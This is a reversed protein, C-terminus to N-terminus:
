ENLIGMIKDFYSGMFSVAIILVIIGMIITLMPGALKSANKIKYEADNQLYESAKILSQDLTGSAEGAGVLNRVVPPFSYEARIASEVTNGNRVSYYINRTARTVLPHQVAPICAEIGELYPVGCRVMSGFARCFRAVALEQVVGGFFPLLMSVWRAAAQGTRFRLLLFIAVIGLGGIILYSLINQPIFGIYVLVAAAAIATLFAFAPYQASQRLSQTISAEFDYFGELTRFAGSYDGTQEAAAVISVAMPHFIGGYRRMGMSVPDGVRVANAIAFAANRFYLPGTGAAQELAMDPTMGADLMVALERFFLALTRAPVGPTIAQAAVYAM